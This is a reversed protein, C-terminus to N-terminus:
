CFWENIYVERKPCTKTMDQTNQFITKGSKESTKIGKKESNGIQFHTALKWVDTFNGM